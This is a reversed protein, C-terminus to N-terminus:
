YEQLWESNERLEYDNVDPEDPDLVIKQSYYVQKQLNNIDLEIKNFSNANVIRPQLIDKNQKLYNNAATINGADIYSQYKKVYPASEADVDKYNSLEIITIVEKQKRSM